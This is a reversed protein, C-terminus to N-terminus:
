RWRMDGNKEIVLEDNPIDQVWQAEVGVHNADIEEGLVQWNVSKGGMTVIRTIGVVGVLFLLDALQYM